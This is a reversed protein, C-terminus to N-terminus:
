ELQNFLAGLKAATIDRNHRPDSSASLEISLHPQPRGRRYSILDRVQVV